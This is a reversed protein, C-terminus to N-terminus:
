VDKYNWCRLAFNLLKTRRLIVSAEDWENTEPCAFSVLETQSKFLSDRYFYRHKEQFALNSKGSNETSIDLTLNGLSHLYTSPFDSTMWNPIIRPNQPIIHEISLSRYKTRYPFYSEEIYEFSRLHNEYRWLLYTLDNSAVDEYVTPSELREQFEYDSCYEGILDKLGAALHDYNGTFDQALKFFRHTLTANSQKRKRIGYIRFSAMEALKTIRVFNSKHKTKDYKLATVLLPLFQALKRLLYLNWLDGEFMGSMSRFTSFTEKLEQSYVEIFKTAEDRTSEDSALDNIKGKVLSLHKGYDNRREDVGGAVFTIYHNRLIDDEDLTWHERMGEYDKYIEGFRTQITHLHKEPQRATIYIKYMLFSKIKELSTLPKGRDNTTEFILTAEADNSVAYTLVKAREIKARFERATDISIKAIETEFFRKAEILRRQSPTDVEPSDDSNEEMIYKRFFDNDYELVRLRYENRYELYTERLIDIDDGAEALKKLLVRMFIVLTTIRQQGDVVDIIKFHGESNQVQLLLTGFFYDREINQDELDKMFDQLQKEGWSYARQYTPINFIRRSEFLDSIARQGNEM